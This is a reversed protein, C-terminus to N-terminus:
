IKEYIDLKKMKKLKIRVFYEKGMYSSRYINLFNNDTLKIYYRYGIEHGGTWPDTFGESVLIYTLEKKFPINKRIKLEKILKLATKLNSNSNLVQEFDYFTGEVNIITGKPPVKKRSFISFM